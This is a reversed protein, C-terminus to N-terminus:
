TRAPDFSVLTETGTERLERLHAAETGDEKFTINKGSIYLHLGNNRTLTWALSSAAASSLELWQRLGAPAQALSQNWRM